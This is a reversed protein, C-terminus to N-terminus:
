YLREFIVFAMMCWDLHMLLSMKMWRSTLNEVLPKWQQRLKSQSGHCLLTQCFNQPKWFKKQTFEQNMTIWRLPSLMYLELQVGVSQALQVIWDMLM